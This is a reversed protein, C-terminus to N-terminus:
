RLWHWGLLIHRLLHEAVRCCGETSVQGIYNRGIYNHGICDHCEVADRLLFKLKHHDVNEDHAGGDRGCGHPVRCGGGGM